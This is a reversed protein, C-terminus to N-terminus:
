SRPTWTSLDFPWMDNALPSPALRRLVEGTEPALEVMHSGDADGAVLRGATVDWWRQTSPKAYLRRWHMDYAVLSAGRVGKGDPPYGGTAANCLVVEDARECGSVRITRTRRWSRTDVVQLARQLYRHGVGGPVEEFGGIGLSDHGLWTAAVSLRFHVGGSGPETAPPRSLFRRPLPVRHYRVERTRPLVEAIPRDSVVVFLREGDTALAPDREPPYYSGALRMGDGGDLDLRGLRTSWTAGDPRVVVVRPFRGSTDLLAVTRDRLTVSASVGGAFRMRRVVRRRAPDVVLLQTPLRAWWAANPTALAVIRGPRPWALVDVEAGAGGRRARAITFRKVAVPRSLDVFLLEGDNSGGFALTRGDPSRVRSTANDGLRLGRGIPQLTKPDVHLLVSAYFDGRSQYRETLAFWREAPRAAGGCGAALVGILLLGVVLRVPYM